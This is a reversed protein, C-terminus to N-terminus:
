KFAAKTILDKIKVKYENKPTSFIEDENLEIELVKFDAEILKYWDGKVCDEKQKFYIKKIKEDDGRTLIHHHYLLRHYTLHHRLKWTGTELHQFESPSKSHSGTLRKLLASDVVELRSM